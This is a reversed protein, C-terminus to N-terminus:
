AFYSIKKKNVDLGTYYMKWPSGGQNSESDAGERVEDKEVLREGSKHM